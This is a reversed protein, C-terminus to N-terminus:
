IYTPKYAPLQLKEVCEKLHKDNFIINAIEQTNPQSVIQGMDEWLMVMGADSSAKALWNFLTDINKLEDATATALDALWEDILTNDTISTEMTVPDTTENWNSHFTANDVSMCPFTYFLKRLDSYAAPYDDGMQLDIEKTTSTNRKLIDSYLALELDNIPIKFAARSGTFYNNVASILPEILAQYTGANESDVSCSYAVLSNLKNIIENQTNM